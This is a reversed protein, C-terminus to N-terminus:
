YGAQVVRALEPTLIRALDAATEPSNGLLTNGTVTVNVTNGRNGSGNVSNALSPGPNTNGGGGGTTADAPVQAEGWLAMGEGIKTAATRMDALFREAGERLVHAQKEREAMQALAEDLGEKLAALANAPLDKLKSLGAMTELASKISTTVQLVASAFLVAQAIGVAGITQAMTRVSQVVYGIAGVLANVAEVSPLTLKAMGTFLDVGAKAAGLSKAAGDSFAALQKLGEDNLMTAMAAFQRVVYGIAGVLNDVAKTSPLALKAMGTFLDVGTKAASLSKAAADSFASLHKLGEDNLMDAIDAFRQVLYRVSDVFSDIAAQSPTVLTAMGAFGDLAPKVVGAVKGAAEAFQGAATLAGEAFEAAADAFNQTLAAMLHTFWGMASGSPSTVAFDAGALAKLGTLSNAVSGGVKGAADAFQGATTLAETDFDQAARAFNTVLSSILHTFWGMASGTPSANAFDYTALAKLGDLSNKVSGGVKSAAEAFSSAAALGKDTFDAAADQITRVLNSTLAAFGSLQGASPTDVAVNFKALLRSAGLADTIAKSVASATEAGKKAADNGFAEFATIAAQLAPGWSEFLAAWNPLTRFPGEEAPSHPLNRNLQAISELAPAINVIATVTFTKPVDEIAGKLLGVANVEDDIAQKSTQAASAKMAAALTAAVGAGTQAVGELVAASAINDLAKKQDVAAITADVTQSQVVGLQGNLYQIAPALREYEARQAATVKKGNDTAVNLADWQAQLPALLAQLEAQQSNLGQIAAVHNQYAATARDTASAAADAGLAVQQLGRGLALVSPMAAGIAAAAGAMGRGFNGAGSGMMDLHSGVLPLSNQLVTLGNGMLDMGSRVQGLANGLTSASDGAQAMALGATDSAVGTRGAADIYRNWAAVLDDNSRITINAADIYRAFGAVANNTENAGHATAFAAASMTQVFEKQMQVTGGTADRYKVMADTLLKWALVAGGVVVAIEALVVLVSGGLAVDLRAAAATAADFLAPLTKLVSAVQIIAGHFKLAAIAVLGFMVVDDKGHQDLSVFLDATTKLVPGLVSGIVGAVDQVKTAVDKLATAWERAQQQFAPDRVKAILRDFAPIAVNVVNQVQSTITAIVGQFGGSGMATTLRAMLDTGANFIPTFIQGAAQAATDKITSWLGAWTHSQKEMMGGFDTEMGKTVAAITVSASVAGREVQKMATPIDTGIAEALYRWAPIGAETLQMMEEASTKGKAQMQGLATTVRDVTEASGGLAAVADGIATLTPVVDQAAFGMAMLRQAARTLDPFEFPTRAAFSQLEDLFVKAREGSGLMTTFAITAQQKMSDFGLGLKVAGVGLEGLKSAASSFLNGGFVGAAIQGVSTISQAFQRLHAESRPVGRTVESDDYSVKAQLATISPM